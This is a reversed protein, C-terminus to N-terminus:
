LECLSSSVAAIVHGVGVWDRTAVGATRTGVGGVSAGRVTLCGPGANPLGPARSSSRGLTSRAVISRRPRYRPGARPGLSAGTVITTNVSMFHGYQALTSPV